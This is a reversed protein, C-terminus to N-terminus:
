GGEESSTEDTAGYRFTGDSTYDFYIAYCGDQTITAASWYAWEEGDSQVTCKGAWNGSFDACDTKQVHPKQLRAKIHEPLQQMTLPDLAAVGLLALIISM